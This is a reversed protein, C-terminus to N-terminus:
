GRRWIGMFAPSSRVFRTNLKLNFRARVIVYGDKDMVHGTVDFVTGAAIKLNECPYWNKTSCACVGVSEATKQWVYGPHTQEESKLTRPFQEHSLERWALDRIGVFYGGEPWYQTPIRAGKTLLPTIDRELVVARRDHTIEGREKKRFFRSIFREEDFNVGEEDLRSAHTRKM